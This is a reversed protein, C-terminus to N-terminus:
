VEQALTLWFPLARRGARTREMDAILGDHAVGDTNFISSALARASVPPPSASTPPTLNIPYTPIKAILRGILYRGLATLGRSNCCMGSPYAPM